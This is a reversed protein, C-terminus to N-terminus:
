ASWVGALERMRATDMRLSVVRAGAMASCQVTCSETNGCVHLASRAKHQAAANHTSGRRTTARQRGSAACGVHRRDHRCPAVVPGCLLCPLTRPFSGAAPPVSAKNNAIGDALLGRCYEVLHEAAERVIAFLGPGRISTLAFRSRAVRPRPGHTPCTGTTPPPTKVVTDLQNQPLAPSNHGHVCLCIRIFGGVYPTIPRGQMRMM